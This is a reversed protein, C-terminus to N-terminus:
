TPCNGPARKGAFRDRIWALQDAVTEGMTPDHDLGPYRRFTVAQGNRCARDVTERIGPLPVASDADGAIEFIPGKIPAAGAANQDFFSRVAAADGWGPKVMAATGVGHYSAYGYLWCGKTTVDRYHAMGAASLIGEPRAEPSRTHIAYAIWALYFGAGATEEPHTVLRALHTAGAVSVAGLYNPDQLKAQLEAVGWAAAGGQSHGDVVWSRGLGPVAARAAPISHVVDLAQAEKDMYRHAGATGLGHYDTAVVAFGAELMQSLGLGGYYVDSMASPACQRAVGSTGHAWAIVPWGGAPVPGAPVLVVGSTAVDTGDPEASHYLIRIASTGAPLTYGAFVEQRLLDGPKSDALNAPTDYFATIPLATSQEMKVADPVTEPLGPEDARAPLLGLMLAGGAAWLWASRRSRLVGSNSSARM